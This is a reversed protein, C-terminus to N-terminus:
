TMLMSASHSQRPHDEDLLSKLASEPVHRYLLKNGVCNKPPEFRRHMGRKRRFYHNEEVTSTEKRTLPCAYLTSM